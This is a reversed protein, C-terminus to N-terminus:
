VKTQHCFTCLDYTHIRKVVSKYKLAGMRHCLLMFLKQKIVSLTFVQLCFGNSSLNLRISENLSQSYKLARTWHSLPSWCKWEIVSFHTFKINNSQVSANSSLAHAFLKCLCSIQNLTSICGSLLHFHWERSTELRSIFHNSLIINYSLGQCYLWCV